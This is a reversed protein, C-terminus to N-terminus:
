GGLEEGRVYIVDRIRDIHVSDDVVSIQKRCNCRRGATLRTVIHLRVDNQNTEFSYFRSIFIETDICLKWM